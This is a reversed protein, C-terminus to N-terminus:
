LLFMRPLILITLFAWQHWFRLFDGVECSDKGQLYRYVIKVLSVGGQWETRLKFTVGSGLWATDGLLSHLDKDWCGTKSNKCLVGGSSLFHSPFGELVTDNSCLGLHPSTVFWMFCHLPIYWLFFCLCMIAHYAWSGCSFCNPEHPLTFSASLPLVHPWFSPLSLKYIM